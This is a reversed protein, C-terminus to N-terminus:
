FCRIFRMLLSRLIAIQLRGRGGFVIKFAVVAVIMTILATAAIRFSTLYFRLVMM